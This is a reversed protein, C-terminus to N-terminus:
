RVPIPAARRSSPAIPPEIQNLLKSFLGVYKYVQSEHEFDKTADPGVPNPAMLADAISQAMVDPSGVPVLKGYRGYKLIETTGGKCATAVVRKGLGLAEILSNPLGEYRSSSIYIDAAAMFAYPNNHFGILDVDSRIGLEIALEELEKRLPGEGLVILKADSSYSQKLKSFARILTDFDKQPKLRGVALLVPFKRDATLWKHEVPEQSKDFIDSTITPNYIVEIKDEDVQMFDTLDSVMDMCQSVVVDARRYSFATLPQLVQSVPLAYDKLQEQLTNAQRLVLKCNVGSIGRALTAVINNFHISSFLVNPRRKKLYSALALVNKIPTHRSGKLDVINISPDVNTFTADSTKSLVLDVHWGTSVLGNAIKLLIKDAGYGQLSDLYIAIINSLSKNKQNVTSKASRLKHELIETENPM